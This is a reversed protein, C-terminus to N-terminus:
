DYLNIHALINYFSLTHSLKMNSIKFVFLIKKKCEVDFTLQLDVMFEKGSTM